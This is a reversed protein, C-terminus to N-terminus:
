PQTTGALTVRMGHSLGLFGSSVVQEGEALGDLIEVREGLHQGSTVETRRAYREEDLRFVFEGQTDRRLASFPIILRPQPRLALTVRCLQGPKAAPPPEDLRIEVIGQRTLPDVTPHIRLINGALGLDGLADLKVTVTDGVALGPLHLESVAVEALLTDTATLTLLHTFRAVTDGPEALRRSIVGAFPAEIRTNALRITLLDEEARAVDLATRARALEDEAILKKQQLRVVRQLDLQAQKRTATAKKLEARLRTDDLQVLLRGQEVRDGEHFPLQAIRGEEETILKVEQEARLSGTRTLQQGLSQRLVTATEVQLPRPQSEKKDTPAESNGCASLLFLATTFLLAAKM